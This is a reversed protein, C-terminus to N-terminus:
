AFDFVRAGFERAIEVARDTSGTHVVVIEDFMGCVSSLCSSINKEEDKVIM